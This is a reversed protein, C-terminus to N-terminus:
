IYFLQLYDCAVSFILNSLDKETFDDFSIMTVSQSFRPFATSLMM